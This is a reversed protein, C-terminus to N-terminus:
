PANTLQEQYPDPLLLEREESLEEFYYIFHALHFGSPYRQSSQVLLVLSLKKIGFTCVSIHGM